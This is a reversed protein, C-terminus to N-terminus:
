LGSGPFICKLQGGRVCLWLQADISLYVGVDEDKISTQTPVHMWGGPIRQIEGPKAVECDSPGCCHAGWRDVYSGNMIWEASGHAMAACCHLILAGALAIALGIHAAKM